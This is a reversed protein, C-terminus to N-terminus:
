DWCLAPDGAELDREQSIEVLTRIVGPKGGEAGPARWLEAGLVSLTSELPVGWFILDRKFGLFDERCWNGGFSVCSPHGDVGIRSDAGPLSM